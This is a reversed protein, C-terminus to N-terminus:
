ARWPTPWLRRRCTWPAIGAAAFARTCAEGALDKLSRELFKGFPTLGVGIIKVEEM